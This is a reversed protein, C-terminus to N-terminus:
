EFLYFYSYVEINTSKNIFKKFFFNNKIRNLDDIIVIKLNNRSIKEVLCAGLYGLGGFIVIKKNKKNKIKM